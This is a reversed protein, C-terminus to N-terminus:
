GRVEQMRVELGTHPGYKAMFGSWIASADQLRIAAFSLCHQTIFSLAKM